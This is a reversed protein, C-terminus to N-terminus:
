QEVKRIYDAGAFSAKTPIYFPVVWDALNLQNAVGFAVGNHHWSPFSGVAFVDVNDSRKIVFCSLHNLLFYERGILYDCVFRYLSTQLGAVGYAIFGPCLTKHCGQTFQQQAKEAHDVEQGNKVRGCERQTIEIRQVSRRQRKLRTQRPL